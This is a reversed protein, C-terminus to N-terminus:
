ALSIAGLPLSTLHTKKERPESVEGCTLISFLTKLFHNNFTHTNTHTLSKTQRSHVVTLFHREFGPRARRKKFPRFLELSPFLRICITLRSLWTLDCPFDFKGRVAYKQCRTGCAIFFFHYAKQLFSSVDVSAIDISESRQVLHTFIKCIELCYFFFQTKAM